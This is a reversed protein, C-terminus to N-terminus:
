SIAVPQLLAAPGEVRLASEDLAKGLMESSSELLGSLGESGMARRATRNLGPLVHRELSYTDDAEVMRDVTALVTFDGDLDDITSTGFLYAPNALLVLSPVDDGADLDFVHVFDQPATGALIVQGIAAPDLDDTTKGAAFQDLMFPMLAAMLAGIETVPSLTLLGEVQVVDRQGFAHSSDQTLDVLEDNQILFDVVDNM